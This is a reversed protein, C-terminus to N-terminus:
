LVPYGDLAQSMLPGPDRPGRAEPKSRDTPSGDQKEPATKPLLTESKFVSPNLM